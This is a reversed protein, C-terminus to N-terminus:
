GRGEDEADMIRRLDAARSRLDQFFDTDTIEADKKAQWASDIEISLEQVETPTM